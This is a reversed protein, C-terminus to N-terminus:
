IFIFAEGWEKKIDIIFCKDASGLSLYCARSETARGAVGELVEAARVLKLRKLNDQLRECTLQEM